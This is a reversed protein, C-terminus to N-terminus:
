LVIHYGVTNTDTLARRGNARCRHHIYYQKCLIILVRKMDLSKDTQTSVKHVVQVLPSTQVPSFQAPTPDHIKQKMLCTNQNGCSHRGLMMAEGLTPMHMTYYQLM